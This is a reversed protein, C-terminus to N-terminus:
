LDGEEPAGIDLLYSIVSHGAPLSHKAWWLATAGNSTKAGLDAGSEILFKLVELHGMRSAEHIPQWKNADIAHLLSPSKRITDELALIDGSAAALHAPTQGLDAASDGEEDKRVNNRRNMEIYKENVYGSDASAATDAERVHHDLELDDHNSQEHGGVKKFSDRTNRIAKIRPSAFSPSSLHKKNNEEHNVPIFHVFVNAFYKGKMPFPRGHLVTHSEYLVMDGPEMTVNYAKGDHSYVEVPWPEDVDQAVNIICSSVLPIRDVHTALVAGDKYVRIGYLSTPELTQGTWEEIIPKVGDWINRKVSGDGGRLSQDELSIM